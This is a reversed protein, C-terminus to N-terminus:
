PDISAPNDPDDTWKAPNEIIYQCIRELDADDRIVHEYYNRQWLRAGPTGRVGNIRKAAASKVARVLAGLFGPAVAWEAGDRQLPAAVAM